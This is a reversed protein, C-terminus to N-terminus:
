VAGECIMESYCKDYDSSSLQIKEQAAKIKELNLDKVGM